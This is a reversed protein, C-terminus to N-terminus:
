YFKITKNNVKKLNCLDKIKGEKFKLVRKKANKENLAEFHIDKSDIKAELHANILVGEKTLKVIADESNKVSVERLTENLLNYAFLRLGKTRKYTGIIKYEQKEKEVQEMQPKSLDKGVNDFEKM